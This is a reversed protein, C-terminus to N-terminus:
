YRRRIKKLITTTLFIREDKNIGIFYIIIGSIIFSSLSSIVLGQWGFIKQHIYFPIPVSLITVLLSILVVERIYKKTPFKFLYNLYIIRVIYTILNILVRIILVFYPPLGIKLCLYAIPLNMIIILGMLIQYNKIKGTAAVSMWLPASIADILLFLIILISFSSAYEPVSHLWIDLLFDINVIVPIAIILMLYYSFKSTRFILSNLSSIDNSAYSKVIQPNFATQFSSVFSYVASSVQNAVGMAANVTVGHFINLLISLGQQAGVNATSGFLSWGSFSLLKKFLLSDWFPNYRSTDFKRNCYIKYLGLVLLKVFFMLFAYLILKDFDLIFLSYVMILSLAAEMISIVAYFSMKEYAIVTANYPVRIVQTCFTLISFQYVWNVARMRNLPLNLHTNVFWLGITESLLFVLVAMGIHTTMSMSFVRQVEKIDNKGLEFNLFRQTSRTLANNLFSFLVIVGGVINYIGFDEVGLLKLVVRSTYLSVIM